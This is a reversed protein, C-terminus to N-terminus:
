SRGIKEMIERLSPAVASEVKRQRKVEEKMILMFEGRINTNDFYFKAVRLKARNDYQILGLFVCRNEVTGLYLLPRSEQINKLIDRPSAWRVVIKAIWPVRPDKMFMDKHEKIHEEDVVEEWRSVNCSREEINQVARQVIIPLTQPDVFPRYRAVYKLEKVLAPIKALEGSLLNVRGELNFLGRVYLPIQSKSPWLDRLAVIPDYYLSLLLTAIIFLFWNQFMWEFFTPFFYHLSSIFLIAQRIYDHLFGILAFLSYSLYLNIIWSLNYIKSHTSLIPLGRIGAMAMPEAVAYPAIFNECERRFKIENEPDAPNDFMNRAHEVRKMLRFEYSRVLYVQLGALAAGFLLLAIGPIGWTVRFYVNGISQRINEWVLFPLIFWAIASITKLIRLLGIKKLIQIIDLLDQLM